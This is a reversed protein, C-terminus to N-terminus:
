TTPTTPYRASCLIPRFTTLNRVSNVRVVVAQPSSPQIPVHLFCFPITAFSQTKERASDIVDVADIIIVIPQHHLAVYTDFTKLIMRADRVMTEGM